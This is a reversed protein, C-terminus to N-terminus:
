PRAPREFGVANGCVRWLCVAPLLSLWRGLSFDVGAALGPVALRLSVVFGVSRAVRGCAFATPWRAALWFFGLGAM